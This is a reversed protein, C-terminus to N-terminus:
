CTHMNCTTGYALQVQRGRPQVSIDVAIAHKVVHLRVTLGRSPLSGLTVHRSFVVGMAMQQLM